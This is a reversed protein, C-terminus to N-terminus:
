AEPNTLRSALVPSVCALAFAVFCLIVGDLPLRPGWLTGAHALVYPLPIWIAALTALRAERRWAFTWRWGLLGLVLMILLATELIGVCSDALWDPLPTQSVGTATLGYKLFGEGFFFALAAWLRRRVTGAPDDQVADWVDQALMRYRTAQNQEHLLEDKRGPPLAAELAEETQPGGTALRNNGIWLHLFASDAIPVPEHFVQFTHVIWPALGNAFGLFALLAALWGRRLVRCRLLFWLMAVMAFPLLAARVLALGALALGYLLSAFPGGEQSASTGLALSLGLLTSALVGDNLEATNFIWFPHIACLLGALFGVVVSRFARRAFLFYCIATLTGLGCQIMRLLHAPEDVLRALLGVLWPYGPGFHATQEEKEALPARSVFKHNDRLNAILNDPDAPNKGLAEIEEALNVLLPPEETRLPAPGAGHNTGVSIYWVRAGAAVALVIVLLVLDAFRFRPMETM